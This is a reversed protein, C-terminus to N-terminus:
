LNVFTGTRVSELAKLACLTARLGDKATIELQTRGRVSDCFHRLLQAHGKDDNSAIPKRKQVGYVELSSFNDLTFAKGGAFVELREKSLNKHGIVTYILTGVSGDAYTISASLNAPEKSKGDLGGALTAAIRIPESQVLYYLLDFFHCGEGIIRGGGQSAQLTWHDPPLYGANVRYTLMRPGQAVDLLRKLERVLPAFRRNFGVTLLVGADAVEGCVQQCDELTLALPKELFIHKGSRAAAIAMEAHLHHRTAILVADINKDSLVEQYDTTCYAAGFQQAVERAKVGTHNAIAVLECDPNDRLNPLHYARAFSGAGIAAFRVKDKNKDQEGSRKLHVVPSYSEAREPSDYHFVVGLTEKPSEALARYARAADKVYYEASVLPTVRVKGEALLRVFEAMNRNETWRVYGIPYDIGLQEYQPDYRGPGYSRSILLDLERHYFHTRELSMGVDGVIIVRGRQRCMEFAQNVPVDSSTAACVIAADAGYDGAIQNVEKVVDETSANILHDAGLEKALNLREDMLDIAIVQCGAVRLLQSVLQGVLGLGTVVVTEGFSTEARRVGQMAIAGLTTFSAERLHLNSPVPVILNRPVSIIEAHNATGGGCAVPDGIRFDEVGEGVDVVMGSAAYGSGQLTHLPQLRHRVRTITSVLGESQLSSGLKKVLSIRESLASTTKQSATALETGSSIVSYATRVVVHGASITPAPVDIVVVEQRENLCVQRM